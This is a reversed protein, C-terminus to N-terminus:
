LRVIPRDYRFDIFKVRKGEITLRSLMLQLSSIQIKINKTSSILALGGGSLHILYSSDETREISSYDIGSKMLERSIDENELLVYKRSLPSAVKKNAFSSYIIYFGMLCTLPLIFFLVTRLFNIKKERKIKGRRM